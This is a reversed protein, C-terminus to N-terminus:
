AEDEPFLERLAARGDPGTVTEFQRVRFVIQVPQARAGSVAARAARNGWREPALAMARHILTDIHLKASRVSDETAGQAVELAKDACMEAGFSRAADAAAAFEPYKQRWNYITMACPRGDQGAVQEYTMGIALDDCVKQVMSPTYECKKRRPKKAAPEVDSTAM